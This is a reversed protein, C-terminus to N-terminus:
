NLLFPANIGSDPKTQPFDHFDHANLPFLKPSSIGRIFICILKITEKIVKMLVLMVIVASVFIEFNVYIRNRM